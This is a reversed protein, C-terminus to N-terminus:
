GGDTSLRDGNVLGVKCGVACGLGDGVLRNPESVGTGDHLSVGINDGVKDAERDGVISAMFGFRKGGILGVNCGVASGVIDGM